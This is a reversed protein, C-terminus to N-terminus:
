STHAGSRTNKIGLGCGSRTPSDVQFSRIRVEIRLVGVGSDEPVEGGVAAVDDPEDNLEFVTEVTFEVPRFGAVLPLGDGSEVVIGPAGVAVVDALFAEVGVDVMCLVFVFSRGVEGEDM